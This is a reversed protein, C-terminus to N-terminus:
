KIRWKRRISSKKNISKRNGENFLSLSSPLFDMLPCLAHNKYMLLINYFINGCIWIKGEKEGLIGGM